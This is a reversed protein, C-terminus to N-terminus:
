YQAPRFATLPVVCKCDAQWRTTRIQDAGDFRNPGFAMGGFGSVGIRGLSRMGRSFGAPSLDAGSALAGRSVLIWFACERSFNVEEERPVQRGLAKSAEERCQKDIAPEPFNGRHEALRTITFALNGNYSAPMNSYYFDSNAGNWDSNFYPPTYGQSTADQVFQTFVLAHSMNVIVDSKTRHQQVEVPVQGAATGFDANFVSVHSVNYGRNKLEGELRRVISAPGSRLDFLLGVRKGKLSGLRDVEHALNAVTRDSGMFTTFLLGKSRPYYEQPVGSSGAAILPTNHEETFCLMPPGIFGGSAVAVAVKRQETLFLCAQRMSEESLPDYTVFHLEFPRGNIGGSANLTDVWHQWVKKSEEVDGTAPFGLATVNGLDLLLVGLKIAPGSARGGPGSGAGGPGTGGAGAGGAGSGGLGPLSGDVGATGAAGSADAGGTAADGGTGDATAGVGNDLFPENGTGGASIVQAGDAFILPVGVGATFIGMVVGLILSYTQLRSRPSFRTM